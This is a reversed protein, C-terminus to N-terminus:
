NLFKFYFKENKDNTVEVLYFKTLQLSCTTIDIFYRNDGLNKLSPTLSCAVNAPQINPTLSNFDFIKYSLFSSKYEEEFKFYVKNSVPLQYGGDINKKPVIYSIVNSFRVVLVNDNATCGSADTVTLTYITNSSPAVTNNCQNINGTAFGTNTSWLTSYPPVGGTACNPVGGIPVPTAVYIQDPGANAFLNLSVVINISNSIGVCGNSNTVSAVFNGATATSYLNSNTGVNIANQTWQYTFGSGSGPGVTATFSVPNGSCIGLASSVITVNPKPFISITNSFVTPCSSGIVQLYYNGTQTPSYSALTAGSIPSGNLYWQLGLYAPVNITSNISLGPSPFCLLGPQNAAINVTNPSVVVNVTKTYICGGFNVFVTYTTNTLPSVTQNQGILNGPQWTYSTNPITQPINFTFTIPSLWFPPFPPFTFSIKKLFQSTLNVSGGSCIATSSSAASLSYFQQQLFCNIAIPLNPGVSVAAFVVSNAIKNGNVVQNFGYGTNSVNGILSSSYALIKGNVFGNNQSTGSMFLKAYSLSDPITSPGNIIANNSNFYNKTNLFSNVGFNLTGVNNFDRSINILGNNNVIGQSNSLLFDRNILSLNNNNFIGFKTEFDRATITGTNSISGNEINVDQKVSLIKNNYFTNNNKSITLSKGISFNQNNNVTLTGNNYSSNFHNSINFQYNNTITVVGSNQGNGGINLSNNINFSGNNLITKSLKNDLSMVGFINVISKPANQFNLFTNSINFQGGINFFTESSIGLPDSAGINIFLNGKSANFSQKVAFRSGQNININLSNQSNTSAFNFPGNISIKSSAYCNISLNGNSNINLAGNKNFLSYNNFVGSNFIINTVTGENCLVGGNLVINGTYLVGSSICLSQGGTLTINANSNATIVTTCNTCNQTFFNFPILFLLVALFTNIKLAYKDNIKM